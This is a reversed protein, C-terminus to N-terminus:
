AAIFSKRASGILARVLTARYPLLNWLGLLVNLSPPGPLLLSRWMRDLNRASVLLGFERGDTFAARGGDLSRAQKRRLQERQDVQADRQDM